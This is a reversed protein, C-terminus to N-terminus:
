TTLELRLIVTHSTTRNQGTTSWSTHSNVKQCAQCTHQTQRSAAALWGRSWAVLRQKRTCEQAILVRDWESGKCCFGGLYLTVLYQFVLLNPVSYLWYFPQNFEVKCASFWIQFNSNRLERDISSTDLPCFNAWDISRAISLHQSQSLFCSFLEVSLSATSCTDLM